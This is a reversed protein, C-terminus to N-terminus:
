LLTGVIDIDSVEDMKEKNRNSIFTNLSNIIKFIFPHRIKYLKIARSDDDRKGRRLSILGASKLIKLQQSVTSQSKGLKSEIESACKEGEKLFSLIELRTADALVKLFDVIDESVRLIKFVKEVINVLPKLNIFREIIIYYYLIFKKYIM